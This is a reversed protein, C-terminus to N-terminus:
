HTKNNNNITAIFLENILKQLQKSLQMGNLHLSENQM